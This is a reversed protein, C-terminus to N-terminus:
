RFARMLNGSKEGNSRKYVYDFIESQRFNLTDGKQVGVVEYPESVIRGSLGGEQWRTVEIWLYEKGGFRTSLPINVALVDGSPLGGQWAAELDVLDSRVRATAEAATAPPPRPGPAPAAAIPSAAPPAGALPGAPEPGAAPDVAAAIPPGAEVLVEGAFRVRLLPGQPDDAGADVVSLRAAGRADETDVATEPFVEGLPHLTEAVAQLVWGVDSAADPAVGEVVLEFDGFRRLGRTVIRVTGTAEDPVSQEVVFWDRLLGRPDRERWTAADFLLQTDLDEVWGGTATAAEAFAAHATAFTDISPERPGAFWALVVMESRKLGEPNAIEPGFEAIFDDDPIGFDATGIGMIRTPVAQHESFEDASEIDALAEDLRDLTADDCRPNCYLALAFRADPVIPLSAPPAEALALPALLPLLQM